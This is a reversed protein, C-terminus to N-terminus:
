KQVEHFESESVQCSLKQSKCNSNSYFVEQDLGVAWIAHPTSLGWLLAVYRVKSQQNPSIGSLKFFNSPCERMGLM